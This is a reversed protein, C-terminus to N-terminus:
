LFKLDSEVSNLSAKNEVPQLVSDGGGLSLIPKDPLNMYRRTGVTRCSGEEIGLKELKRIEASREVTRFFRPTETTDWYIYPM